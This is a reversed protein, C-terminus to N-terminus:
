ENEIGNSTEPEEEEISTFGNLKKNLNIMHEESMVNSQLNGYYGRKGLERAITWDSVEELNRLAEFNEERFKNIRENWLNEVSKRKEAYILRKQNLKELKQHFEYIQRKVASIEEKVEHQMADIVALSAKKKNKLETVQQEFEVQKM